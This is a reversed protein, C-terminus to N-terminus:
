GGEEKERLNKAKRLLKVKNDVSDLVVKMPRPNQKPDAAKKGLRVVSGVKIDDAEVEHFMAALVTMDDDTRRDVDAADSEPVGHVIVNTKRLEIENEESKDTNRAEQAAQVDVCKSVQKDMAAVKQEVDADLKGIYQSVNKDLEAMKLELDKEGKTVREEVTKVRAEILEYKEHLKDEMTTMKELLMQVLDVLKGIRDCTSFATVLAQSTGFDSSM